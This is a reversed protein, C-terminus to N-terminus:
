LPPLPLVRVIDVVDITESGERLTDATLEVSTHVRAAKVQVALFGSVLVLFAGPVLPQLGYGAWLQAAAAAVASAPGAVLWAWSAGQESFLVGSEVSNKIM